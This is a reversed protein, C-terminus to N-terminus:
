EVISGLGCPVNLLKRQSEYIGQLSSVPMSAVKRPIVNPASEKSWLCNAESRLMVPEDVRHWIREVTVPYDGADVRLHLGDVTGPRPDVCPVDVDRTANLSDVTFTGGSGDHVDSGSSNHNSAASRNAKRERQREILQLLNEMGAVIILVCCAYGSV